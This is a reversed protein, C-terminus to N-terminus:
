DVHPEGSYLCVQNRGQHKAQYLAADAAEFLMQASMAHQWQACGLSITVALEPALSGWNFNAIKQRMREAIKCAVHPEVRPLILVFEEGGYRALLDTDRTLAHLLHLGNKLVEDGIHHSYRDNVQKFHDFDIMILCLSGGEQAIQQMLVPLQADLAHRNLAGTLADHFAASELQQMREHEQHRQQMLQKLELESRLLQLKIEAQNLRRSSLADLQDHRNQQLLRLYYNHFGIHHMTARIYDGKAEFLASLEFHINQRLHDDEMHEALELAQLLQREAQPFDNLRANLQGLGLLSQVQGWRSVTNLNLDYAAQYFARARIWDQRAMNMQGLYQNIEALWGLREPLILDDETKMLLQEAFSYEKLKILTAALHLQTKSQLDQDGHLQAWELAQTQYYFAQDFNDHQFYLNAIGLYAHIYREVDDDLQAIQLANLWAQLAQQTMRQAQYCFALGDFCASQLKRQGLKKGLELAANFNTIAQDTQQLISQSNAILLLAQAKLENSQIQEASALAAQALVLSSECNVVFLRRAEQLCRIIDDAVCPTPPLFADLETM